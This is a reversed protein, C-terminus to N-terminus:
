KGIMVFLEVIATFEEIETATFNNDKALQKGIEGQWEAYTHIQCGIQIHGHKANTYGYNRSDLIFLPTKKV